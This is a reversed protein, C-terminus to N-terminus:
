LSVTKNLYLGMSFWYLQQSNIRFLIVNCHILKVLMINIKIKNMQKKKYRMFCLINDFM